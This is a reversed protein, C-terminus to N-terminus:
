HHKEPIFNDVRIFENKTPWSERASDCMKFYSDSFPLVICVISSIFQKLIALSIMKKISIAIALRDKVLLRQPCLWVNM